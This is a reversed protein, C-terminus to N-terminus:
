GGRTPPPPLDSMGKVNSRRMTSPPPVRGHSSNTNDSCYFRHLASAVLAIAVGKIGSFLGILAFLGVAAAITTKFGFLDVGFSSSAPAAGGDGDDTSATLVGDVIRPM